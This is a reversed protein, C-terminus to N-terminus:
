NLLSRIFEQHNNDVGYAEYHSLPRTEYYHYVPKDVHIREFIIRIKDESIFQQRVPKWGLGQNLLCCEIFNNDYADVIKVDKLSTMM